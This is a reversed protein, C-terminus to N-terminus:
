SGQNGWGWTGPGPPHQPSWGQPNPQQGSPNQPMYQQPNQDSQYLSRTPTPYGQPMGQMGPYQMAPQMQPNSSSHRLIPPTQHPSQQLHSPQQPGGLGGFTPFSHQPSQQPQPAAWMQGQQSFAYPNTQGMGGPTHSLSPSRGTMQETRMASQPMGRMPSQALPNQQHPPQTYSQSAMMHQSGQNPLMTSQLSSTSPHPSQMTQTVSPLHDSTSAPPAGGSSATPEHPQKWVAEMYKHRVNRQQTVQKNYDAAHHAQTLLETPPSTQTRDQYAPGQIEHRPRPMNRFDGLRMDNQDPALTIMPLPTGAGPGGMLGSQVNQPQSHLGFHAPANSYVIDGHHGLNASAHASAEAAAADRAKAGGPRKEGALDDETFGQKRAKSEWYDDRVRRGNVIVRSGFQRFMSKATVIAIQRSRYSFPLIDQHILDEKEAQNAIIKYLSRNKNFLLYSDRYGLVRACETALMFLKDGRNPVFFTRCRYERKGLLAGNPAVKQDGAEDYERPVYEDGEPGLQDTTHDRVTPLAKVVSKTPTSKPPSSQTPTVTNIQPPLGTNQQQPTRPPMMQSSLSMSSQSPSEPIGGSTRGKMPRGRKRPKSDGLTQM